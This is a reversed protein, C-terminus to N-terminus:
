SALWGSNKADELALREKFSLPEKISLSAEVSADVSAGAEEELASEACAIVATSALAMQAPNVKGLDEYTNVM